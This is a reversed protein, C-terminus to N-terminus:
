EFVREYEKLAENIVLVNGLRQYGLRGRYAEDASEVQRAAREWLRRVDVVELSRFGVCWGELIVVRM